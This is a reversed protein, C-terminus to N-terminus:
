KKGTDIKFWGYPPCYGFIVTFLMLLAILYLIWIEYSYAIVSILIAFILRMIRDVKGVNRKM